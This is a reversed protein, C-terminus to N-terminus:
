GQRPALRLRDAKRLLDVLSAAEMKRMATARHSKVTIESVGLDAAIDRNRRGSVVFGMVERERATLSEFNGRLKALEMQQERWIRDGEIAAHVADLLEQDRFPKPLFEMAGAKMARVATRVDANGTIFIVPLRINAQKLEDHFDLGNKGPLRVDLVLCNIKGLHARTMFEQASGFMETKLGVSALLSRLAERMAPDDDVVAVTAHAM